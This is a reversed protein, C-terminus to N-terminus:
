KDFDVYIGSVENNIRERFKECDETKFDNAKCENFHATHDRQMNDAFLGNAGIALAILAIATLSAAVVIMSYGVQAHNHTEKM